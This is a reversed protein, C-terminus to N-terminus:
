KKTRAAIIGAGLVGPEELQAEYFLARAEEYPVMEQYRRFVGNIFFDKSRMCGGGLVFVDPNVTYTLNAFLAALANIMQDVLGKAVENGKEAIEFIEGTHSIPRKLMEEAQTRLANGGAIGEAMGPYLGRYPHGSMHVIMNGIEGAFGSKGHYIEGNKIFAGGIGTSVTVYYVLEHGRGAGLLAEALGAVNGDNEVYVPLQLKNQLYERLPFGELSDINTTLTVTGDPLVVGPIGVGVGSVKEEERLRLIVDSIWEPILGNANESSVRTMQELKGDESIIGFRSYTGGIDVGIFKEM